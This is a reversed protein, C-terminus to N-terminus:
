ARVAKRVKAAIRERIETRRPCPPVTSAFAMLDDWWEAIEIETMRGITRCDQAFDYQYSNPIDGWAKMRFEISQRWWALVVDAPSATEPLVVGHCKMQARYASVSPYPAVDVPSVGRPTEQCAGRMAALLLAVSPYKDSTAKLERIAAAAQEGDIPLRVAKEQFVEWEQPSWKSRPWLSQILGQANSVENPTM